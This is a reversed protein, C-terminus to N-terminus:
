TRGMLEELTEVAKEACAPDNIHADVRLLEVRSTDLAAELARMFEQNALPDHWPGLAEGEYSVAQLGESRDLHSFGGLPILVATPGQARNLKRAFEEGLLASQEPNSRMLTIEATYRFFASGSFRSPVTEPAGFNMVEMAGPLVVQPVGMEGAAEMRRPGASYIGGVLEDALESTTIDLVGEVQGEKVLEELGMGGAGSCHFEMVEYGRERLLGSARKVCPETVGFTSIAVLPKREGEEPPELRAMGAMAAAANSLICEIMRNLSIEGVSHMMTIDKAGVYGRTDGSAVCSVVLKPFGIPLAQMIDCAMGTGNAGGVSICGRIKKQALLRSAIRRGGKVMVPRAGPKTEAQVERFEAGGERAVEPASFEQRFEPRFERCSVDLTIPALGHALLRGRLFEFVEGKSDLACIVLVGEGM